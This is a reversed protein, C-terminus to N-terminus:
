TATHLKLWEERSVQPRLPAQEGPPPEDLKAVRDKNAALLNSAPVLADNGLKTLLAVGKMALISVDSSLNADDVKGAEANALAHMRLGTKTSLRAASAYDDSIERLTDALRMANYQQSLPLAALATQSDALQQAVNRVQETQKSVRRSVQAPSIGFARALERVGEGALARRDVEAWQDPTLKSPRGM